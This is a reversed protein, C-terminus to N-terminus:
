LNKALIRDECTRLIHGKNSKNVNHHQNWFIKVIEPDFFEFTEYLIQCELTWRKNIDNCSLITTPTPGLNHNKMQIHCRMVQFTAGTQIDDYNYNPPSYVLTFSEQENGM